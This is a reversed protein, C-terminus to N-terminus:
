SLATNRPQSPMRCCSAFNALKDYSKPRLHPLVLPSPPHSHHSHAKIARGLTLASSEFSSLRCVLGSKAIAFIQSKPPPNHVARSAKICLLSSNLHLLSLRRYGLNLELSEPPPRRPLYHGLGLIASVVQLLLAYRLRYVDTCGCCITSGNCKIPQRGVMDSVIPRIVVAQQNLSGCM